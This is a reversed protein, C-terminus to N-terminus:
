HHQTSPLVPPDPHLCNFNCHDAGAPAAANAGLCERARRQDVFQVDAFDAGVTQGLDLRQGLRCGGREIVTVDHLVGINGHDVDAGRRLLVMVRDRAIAEFGALVHQQLLRDRHLQPLRVLQDRKGPAAAEFKRDAIRLSEIGLEGVGLLLDGVARQSFDDAHHYTAVQAPPEARFDCLSHLQRRHHHLGGVIEVEDEPQEFRGLRHADIRLAGITVHLRDVAGIVDHPRDDRHIVARHDRDAAAPVQRRSIGIEARGPDLDGARLAREDEVVGM